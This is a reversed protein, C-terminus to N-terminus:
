IKILFFLFDETGQRQGRRLHEVAHEGEQGVQRFYFGGVHEQSHGAEEHHRQAAKEKAEQKSEHCREGRAEGVVDAGDLWEEDEHEAVQGVQHGLQEGDGANQRSHLGFHSWEFM